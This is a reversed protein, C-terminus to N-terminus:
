AAAKALERKLHDIAAVPTPDVQYLRALYYSSYDGLLIAGLMQALAGKGHAPVSRYTVKRLDLLKRTM